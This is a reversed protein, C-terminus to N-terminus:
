KEPRIQFNILLVSALLFIAFAQHFVGYWLPINGKCNIVTLIGLIIQAFTLGLMWKTSKTFFLNEIRRSIFFYYIVVTGFLYATMRHFFQVIMAMFHNEDYNIFTSANWVAAKFLDKPVMYGNMDPWTPYALGAKMGSMIGGLFIQLALIALLFRAWRQLSAPLVTRKKGFVEEFYVWWLYGFLLLAFCLHLTLKYANVWPRNVLGSAVMIWGFSAVLVALLIVNLLRRMLMRNILGKKWFIIFPILFVFGMLRAWLRHFYEWFYIFKFESLTMGENIKEYQPTKKYKSFETQWKNNNMPPLSGTIIEWKTISLGSGTLRTVGGIFIQFFIMILGVLLWIQVYVKSNM